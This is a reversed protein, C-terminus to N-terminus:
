PQLWHEEFGCPCCEAASYQDACLHSNFLIAMISRLHPADDRFCIHLLPFPSKNQPPFPLNDVTSNLMLLAVVCKCSRSLHSALCTRLAVTQIQNHSVCGLAQNRETGRASVFRKELCCKKDSESGRLIWSFCSKNTHASWHFFIQYSEISVLQKTKDWAGVRGRMLVCLVPSLIEQSKNQHRSLCSVYDIQSEDSSIMVTQPDLRDGRGTPCQSTKQDCDTHVAFGLSIVPIHNFAEPLILVHFPEWSNFGDLVSATPCPLHICRQSQRQTTIDLFPSGSIFTIM